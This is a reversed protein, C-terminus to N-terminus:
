LHYSKFVEKCIPTKKLIIMQTSLVEINDQFNLM